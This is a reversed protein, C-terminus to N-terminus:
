GGSVPPILAIEDTSTLEIIDEAYARNVAIFLSNLKDLKPFQKALEKRLDGVTNGSIEFDVTKGNLIESTIGFTKITLQM